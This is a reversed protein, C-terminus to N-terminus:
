TPAPADLGVRVYQRAGPVRAELGARLLDLMVILQRALGRVEDAAVTRLAARSRDISILAIKASGLADDLAHPRGREARHAAVLARRTKMALFLHYWMIVNHPPPDSGLRITNSPHWDLKALLLESAVAYALAQRALPEDAPALSYERDPDGALQADLGPTTLGDSRALERTFAVVDVADEARATGDRVRTEISQRMEYSRCRTTVPCYECWDDCFNYVGPIMSEAAPNAAAEPTM